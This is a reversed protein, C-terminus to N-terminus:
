ARSPGALKLLLTFDETIALVRHSKFNKLTLEQIM